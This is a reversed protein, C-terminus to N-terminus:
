PAGGSLFSAPNTTVFAETQDLPVGHHALLPLIDDFVHGFGFGGYRRLRILEGIDHSLMIRHGHGDAVLQAISRAVDWESPPYRGPGLLSHDFGFLDFQLYVGRDALSRLYGLDSVATNLHGLAVRGPDVGEEVLVDLVRLGEWGWPHLHLDLGIGTAVSAMAHARLIRKEADTMPDGTGIEGLVGPRIGSAAVGDRVEAILADAIAQTSTAALEPPHFTELFYGGGMVVQIGSRESIEVLREPSRGFGVPTLDVITRGGAEIFAALEDLVLDINTFRVNEPVAGPDWRIKALQEPALEVSAPTGLAPTLSPADMYLHEHSLTRGLTGAPIPGLVTMVSAAAGSM